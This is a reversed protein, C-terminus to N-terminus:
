RRGKSVAPKHSPKSPPPPPPAPASAPGVGYGGATCERCLWREPVNARTLGVCTLHYWETACDPNDCGIMDGFAVQRCYCYVPEVLDGAEADAMAAAGGSGGASGGANGGTATGDSRRTLHGTLATSILTALSDPM